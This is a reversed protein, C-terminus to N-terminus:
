RSVGAQHLAMATLARVAREEVVDLSEGIHRSLADLAAPVDGALTLDVIALHETITSAIRDKTLLDFMRVPRIRANVAEL